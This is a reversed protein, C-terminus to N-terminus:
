GCNRSPRTSSAGGGTTPDCRGAGRPSSSGSTRTAGPRWSPWATPSWRRWPHEYDDTSEALERLEDRTLIVLPQAEAQPLEVDAAVNKRALGDRVAKDLVLSLVRWVHRVSLASLGQASLAEIWKVVDARRIHGPHRFGFTPVVHTNLLSAYRASSSPKMHERAETLWAHAFDIFLVDPQATATSKRKRTDAM